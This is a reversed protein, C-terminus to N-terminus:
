ESLIHCKFRLLLKVWFDKRFCIQFIINSDLFEVQCLAFVLGVLIVLCFRGSLPQRKTEIGSRMEIVEDFLVDFGLLIGISAM